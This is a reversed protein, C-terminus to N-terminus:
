ISKYWHFKNTENTPIWVLPKCHWRIQSADSPPFPARSPPTTLSNHRPRPPGSLRLWRNSRRQGAGLDPGGAGSGACCLSEIRNPAARMPQVKRLALLAFQLLAVPRGAPRRGTAARRDAPICITIVFDSRKTASKNGALQCSQSRTPSAAPRSTPQDASRLLNASAAFSGAGAM